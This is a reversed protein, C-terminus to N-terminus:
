SELDQEFKEEELEIEALRKANLKEVEPLLYTANNVADSLLILVEEKTQSNGFRRVFPNGKENIVELYIISAMLLDLLEENM